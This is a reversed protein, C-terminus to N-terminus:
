QMTMFPNAGEFNSRSKFALHWHLQVIQAVSAM